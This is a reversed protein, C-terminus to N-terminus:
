VHTLHKKREILRLRFNELWMVEVLRDQSIRDVNYFNLAVTMPTVLM